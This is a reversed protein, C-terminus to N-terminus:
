QLVDRRAPKNALCDRGKMESPASVGFEDLITVTLDELGPSPLTIKRNSMLIGPVLRSDICHDGSWADQNVTVIEKPFGGLPNEWSSRYGWAYGVILDPGQEKYPGNFDRGPRTVQTVVRQGNGPDTM